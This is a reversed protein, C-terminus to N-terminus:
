EDEDFFGQMMNRGIAKQVIAEITEIEGLDLCVRGMFDRLRLMRNLMEKQEAPIDALRIGAKRIRLVKGM